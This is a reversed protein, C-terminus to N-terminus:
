ENNNQRNLNVLSWGEFGERRGKKYGKLLFTELEESNILKEESDSHVWCRKIKRLSRGLKFGNNLYNEVESKSTTWKTILDDTLYIKNKNAESLKNRTEQTVQHNKLSDSIKKAVEPTCSANQRGNKYSRKAAESQKKRAEDSHHKGYMPNKHGPMPNTYGGPSINYGINPDLANLKDIWYIEACNLEEMTECWQLIERSVNEKGYKELLPVWIKGSGYYSDCVKESHKQGVYIKGTPLLTCKYIYGYM